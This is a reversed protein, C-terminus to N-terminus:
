VQAQGPRPVSRALFEAARLDPASTLMQTAAYHRLSRLTVHIGTTKALRRMRGSLTESLLPTAGDPKVTVACIAVRRAQHTKTDKERHNKGKQVYSRSILLFGEAPRVYSWRLGCLEGHRAGTLVAMWLLVGRDPDRDWAAEIFRAVV